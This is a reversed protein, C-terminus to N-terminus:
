FVNFITMNQIKSLTSFKRSSFPAKANQLTTHVLPEILIVRTSRYLPLIPSFFRDMTLDSLISRISRNLWVPECSKYSTQNGMRNKFCQKFCFFISSIKM